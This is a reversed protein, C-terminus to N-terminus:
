FNNLIETKLHRNCKFMQINVPLEFLTQFKTCDALKKRFYIGGEGEGLLALTHRIKLKHEM